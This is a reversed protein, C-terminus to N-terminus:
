IEDVEIKSAENKRLSLHYRKIKINIPDGLPAVREVRIKEGVHLGMELLRQKIEGTAHIKKIMCSKGPAIEKLNSSTKIM